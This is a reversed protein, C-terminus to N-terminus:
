DIKLGCELCYCQGAPTTKWDTQQAPDINIYPLALLMEKENCTCDNDEDYMCCDVCIAKIAADLEIYKKM